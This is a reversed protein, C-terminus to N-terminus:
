PVVEIQALLVSDNDLLKGDPGYAALREGTGGDYMGMALRYTGPPIDPDLPVSYRDALVEGVEWDVTPRVGLGPVRDQQGVISGEDDYLHVFVKYSTDIQRRAQWYVTVKIDEGPKVEKADLDYGLLTVQDGLNVDRREEIHEPIEFSPKTSQVWIRVTGVPETLLPRGAEDLLNLGVVAKGTPMREDTALEYSEQLIEGVRWRDTPYDTTVLEVETQEYTKGDSGRLGIELRYAEMKELAEWFFRLTFPDGAILADGELAYGLLRLQPVIDQELQYPIHLADVGPMTQSVGIEIKLHVTTEGDEGQPELLPLREGAGLLYVGAEMAYLGPPTGPPISLHHLTLGQLGPDWESTPRLYMDTILRDEQAVRNGHSDYIHVFATYDEDLTQLSEWEFFVGGDRGWAPAPNTIGYGRLRVNAFQVNRSLLDIEPEIPQYLNAEIHPFTEKMLQLSQKELLSAVFRGDAEPYRAYWIQECEARLNDLLEGIERPSWDTQFEYLPLDGSYYKALLTNGNVLLCMQDPLSNEEIYSTPQVHYTNPFIWAYEVGHLKVVHEPEVQPNLLYEKSLDNYRLRQAHSIYFVVYDTQSATYRTMGVAEGKCLPGLISVSPTAIQLKKADPKANLYEAVDEDGEGWGVLFTTSAQHLGGLLPTYYTLYSPSHPLLLAGQVVVAAVCLLAFSLRLGRGELKTWARIAGAIGLLGFAAVIDLAPFVPLVYRDFKKAGLSMFAGFLGSYLLLAGLGLRREPRSDKALWLLGAVLGVLALPSLRFLVALPYFLWGPDHVPRGLFYNGLEHGEEAYGVAKDMMRGITGIPDSWMAPWLVVYVVGAVLGWLALDRASRLLVQRSIGQRLADVALLLATFPALFAAPSKQVIAMGGTAGSILLLLMQWRNGKPRQRSALLSLVSLTMLGTLVADLHLFRSHALYFPDLALLALSLMAIERGWVLRVVLYIAAICLWTFLAVGVRGPFLLQGLEAM